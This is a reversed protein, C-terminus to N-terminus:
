QHNVPEAPSVRLEVLTLPLIQIREKWGPLLLKATIAEVIGPVEEEEFSLRISLLAKRK